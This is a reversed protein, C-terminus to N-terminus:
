LENKGFVRFPITAAKIPGFHEARFGNRRMQELADVEPAPKGERCLEAMLDDHTVGGSLADAWDRCGEPPRAVTIDAERGWRAALVHLPLVKPMSHHAEVRKYDDYSMPDTALEELRNSISPLIGNVKSAIDWWLERAGSISMEDETAIDEEHQLRDLTVPDTIHKSASRIDMSVMAADESVDQLLGDITDFTDQFQAVAALLATIRPNNM